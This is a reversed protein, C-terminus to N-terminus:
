RAAEVAARVVEIDVQSYSVREGPRNPGGAVARKASLHVADVGVEFLRRIDCIKVGGGAMIEIRGNAYTVLEQIRAIGDGTKPVGGSTLIRTVGMGVLKDLAAFQDALVDFARHFTVSTERAAEVMRLMADDDINRDSHLAGIVIDVGAAVAKRIDYIITEIEDEDYVFDGERPRILVTVFGDILAASAIEVTREILAISPTLGGTELAACLEIRQAGGQIAARVSFIDQTTIEIVHKKDL